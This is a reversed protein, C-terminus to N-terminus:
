RMILRSEVVITRACKDGLRQRWRSCAIILAAPIAGLLIPNVELVRFGTRVASQYWNCRTGDFRVVVLGTLLKGPTRSIVAEFLFYYGLYVGILLAVQVAPLDDSASKAAVVGLIMAVVNDLAAAVYRPVIPGAPIAPERSEDHNEKSGHVSEAIKEATNSLSGSSNEQDMYAIENYTSDCM